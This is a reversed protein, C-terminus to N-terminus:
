ENNMLFLWRSDLGYYVNLLLCEVVIQVEHM